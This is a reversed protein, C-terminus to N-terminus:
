FVSNEFNLEIAYKLQIKIKTQGSVSDEQVPPHEGPDIRSKRVGRRWGTRRDDGAGGSEYQDARYAPNMTAAEM